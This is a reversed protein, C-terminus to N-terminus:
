SQTQELAALSRSANPDVDKLTLQLDADDGNDISLFLAVEPKGLLAMDSIAAATRYNLVGGEHRYRSNSIAGTDTGSPYLYTRSGENPGAGPKDPSIGADATLYYPRREVTAEPLTKPRYHLRLGSRLDRDPEQVEWYLTAPLGHELGTEIGKM